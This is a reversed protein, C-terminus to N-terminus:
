NRHSFPSLRRVHLPVAQTRGCSHVGENRLLCEGGDASSKLAATRIGRWAGHAKLVKLSKLTRSSSVGISNGCFSYTSPCHLPWCRQIFEGRSAANCKLMKSQLRLGSFM